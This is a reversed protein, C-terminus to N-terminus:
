HLDQVDVKWDGGVAYVKLLYTGPGMWFTTDSGSRATNAGVNLLKGDASYIYVQLQGASQSQNFLWDVRWHDSVTFTETDHSGTGQWMKVVAWMRGVDTPAAESNLNPVVAAHAAAPQAAGGRAIQVEVINLFSAAIIVAILALGVRTRPLQANWWSEFRTAWVDVRKLADIAVLRAARAIETEGPVERPRHLTRANRNVTM